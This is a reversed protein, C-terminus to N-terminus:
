IGSAAVWGTDDPGEPNDVHVKELLDRRFAQPTQIRVHRDRDVRRVFGGQPDVEFITDSIPVVPTACPQGDRVADIVSEFLKSTALPRAADHVVVVDATSPVVGLGHRVSESRTSGGAVYRDASVQEAIEAMESEGLDPSLVVVVGDSVPGAAAVSRELVTKGALSAFQKSSGFRSGSGAAVVM